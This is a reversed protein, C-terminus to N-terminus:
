KEGWTNKLRHIFQGEDCWEGAIPNYSCYWPKELLEGSLSNPRCDFCTYRYECVCCNDIRNKGMTRINEDLTIGSEPKVVCHQIRREMVCPYVTMDSAVYIKRSFCNHGSFLAKCLATNLPKTFTDKTIIQKRLLDDSLLSFNARGAMRVIDQKKGLEFTNDSQCGVEVDKMLVNCTRYQIRHHKLKKILDTTRKWSGSIGTVNDHVEEIYSYVSLALHIDNKELYDFWDDSILTGNTFIEIVNFKGIAYDLMTRLNNGDFYPEGGIISLKKIGIKLISDIVLKYNEFTMVQESSAYSENYCHRCKLNCKNTIEVWALKSTTPTYEREEIFKTISTPSVVILGMKIFAEIISQLSDNLSGVQVKATNIKDLEDSLEKNVSYLKLTNFDYVCSKANGKVLYVNDNFNYYM